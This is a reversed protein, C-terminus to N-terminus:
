FSEKGFEGFAEFPSIFSINIQAYFGDVTLGLLYYLAMGGLIGFLVEGRVKKQSMIVIALFTCLTVVMPM